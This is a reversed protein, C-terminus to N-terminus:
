RTQVIITGAKAPEEGRNSKFPNKGNNAASKLANLTNHLKIAKSRLRARAVQSRLKLYTDAVTAAVAVSAQKQKLTKGTSEKAFKDLLKDM